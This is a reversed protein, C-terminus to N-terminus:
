PMMPAFIPLVSLGAILPQDKGPIPSFTIKVFGNADATTKIVRDIAVGKGGAEKVIDFNSLAPTSNISVNFQRAGAKKFHTEAFLLHIETPRNAEFPGFTYSFAKKGVRADQFLSPPYLKAVKTMDIAVEPHDIVGGGSYGEDALLQLTMNGNILVGGVTPGGCNINGHTTSVLESSVEDLPDGGDTDAGCATVALALGATFAGLRTAQQM